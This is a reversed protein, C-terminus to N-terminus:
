GDEAGKVIRGAWWLGAGELLLGLVLCALGAPTHLLVRLPRAGMAAGLGLGVVPLVALVVVTSWPGALQARLALRQDQEARLAGELRDLGAALGAGGDVAVQWCAALGALGGAGPERAARRLAAPADGGFRVAAVVAPEDGGLGGTAASADMLARVPQSGARLEGATAGCLAVVAEARREASRRRGAARMGRRALPVAFVGAVLPLLSAGLVAVLVAVPVCLWERGLKGARRRCWAAVREPFPPRHAPGVPFAACVARARRRRSEEAVVLRGAVGACLAAAWGCEAVSVATM